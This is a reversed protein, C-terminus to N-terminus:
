ESTGGSPPPSAPSPSNGCRIFIRQVERRLDSFMCDAAKRRPNFVVWWGESLSALELRAAERVRRRIRNRRVAKGLARPTTFGVARREGPVALYFAAFLPCTYRTGQDYVKRFDSSRLLRVSKPFGSTSEGSPSDPQRDLAIRVVEGLQCDAEQPGAGSPALARRPWRGDEHTESFRAGQRPPPQEASFYTQANDQFKFYVVAPHKWAGMCM